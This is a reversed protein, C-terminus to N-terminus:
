QPTFSPNNRSIVYIERVKKRARSLQMRVATASLNLTQAIEEYDREEYDRMRLIQQQTPSLEQEVIRKVQLFREQTEDADHSEAPEADARLDDIRETANATRRRLTDISLNRVATTMLAAAEDESNIRGRRLWLREFADQLADDAEDDNHTISRSLHRLRQQLRRYATVLFTGQPSVEDDREQPPHTTQSM